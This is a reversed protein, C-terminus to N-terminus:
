DSLLWEPEADEDEPDHSLLSVESVSDDSQPTKETEPAEAHSQNESEPASVIQVSAAKSNPESSSDVTIPTESSGQVGNLVAIEHKLQIGRENSEATGLQFRRATTDSPRGATLDVAANAEKKTGDNPVVVLTYRSHPKTSTGLAKTDAGPDNSQEPLVSEADKLEEGGSEPIFGGSDGDGDDGSYSALQEPNEIDRPFGSFSGTGATPEAIGQGDEPFFGGGLEEEEEKNYDDLPPDIENVDEGEVAYNKVREAIRLKVLFHKWLRLAEATKREIEEQLREDELCRLVEELAERYQNAAVIGQIVATGHRGKFQFGTVADAYDIGLIRAARAAEPHKLHFGGPPVMSPVYVDINGYANRPVKGKIVPPPTYLETQFEAYLPTEAAEELDDEDDNTELVKNRNAPVRKLPQEGIKIDRGLRYWGDASRVTHVNGRRYVPELVQNKSGSKGVAVQGIVRKPFIVENRRLHRELAYVPHDKFDQVNRPMPEAATKATLEGTEAQDRDDMFPKEFFSMTKQWWKEGGKTSEVRNRLTKANYSKTYRRTVDRASADDEFAVVYSMANYRDSAPPEFKTPKAVTKTVIPDVPIWKQVAENFAEVWFVPYPSEESRRLTTTRQVTHVPRRVSPTFQPQGIRRLRPPPTSTAPTQSRSKDDSSGDYDDSSIVIYKPSTEVPNFGKVTGTFPIAQLSCVLRTEVAVSRLLACFLQAGFDRSGQMTKSQKRFDEKSVITEVGQTIAETRKDLDRRDEAWYPRKFGSETVRFRRSFADSAQKLGDVFTTSRTFQSMGEKPNLFNRTQKSLMPRLFGQVEDDNCWLNRIQVHSLLCLLHVKHVDLRLKREVATIAKRRPVAPKPTTAGHQGLTIQLPENAGEAQTSAEPANTSRQEIDVEEWEMDSDDSAASDYAIQVQKAPGADPSQLPATAEDPKIEPPAVRREGVRRRKIPRDDADPQNKARADAEALMERYLEPIEEDEDSERHRAPRGRGARGRQPRSSSTRAM